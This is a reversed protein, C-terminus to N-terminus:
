MWLDGWGEEREPADPDDDEEGMGGNGLTPESPISVAICTVLDMEKCGMEPAVYIRKEM